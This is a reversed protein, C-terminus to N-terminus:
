LGYDGYGRRVSGGMMVVRKLKRFRRRMGDIAAGVNMLPGIAM